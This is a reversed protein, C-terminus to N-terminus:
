QTRDGNKKTSRRDIWAWVAYAPLGTLVIGFGIGSTRPAVILLDLIILSALTVYLL